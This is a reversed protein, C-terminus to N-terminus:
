HRTGYAPVANAVISCTQAKSFMEDLSLILKARSTAYQTPRYEAVVEISDRWPLEGAMPTITFCHVPNESELMFEFRVNHSSNNAVRFTRTYKRLISCAGFDIKNPLKAGSQPYAYLPIHLNHGGQCHILVSDVYRTRRLDACFTVVLLDSLGPVMGGTRKTVAVTFDKTLTPLLQYRQHVGSANRLRITKVMSVGEQCGPFHLERASPRLPFAAASDPLHFVCLSSVYDSCPGTERIDEAIYDDKEAGFRRERSQMFVQRILKMDSADPDM